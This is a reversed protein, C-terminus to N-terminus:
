WVMLCLGLYCHSSEERARRVCQGLMDLSINREAEPRDTAM